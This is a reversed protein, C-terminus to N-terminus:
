VAEAKLAKKIVNSLETLKMAVQDEWYDVIKYRLIYNRLFDGLFQLVKSGGFRKQWDFEITGTLEASYKGQNMKVKKGEKIIEIDQLEYIITYAKFHWKVYETVRKSGIYVTKLKVGTPKGPMLKVKDVEFPDFDNAKFWNFIKRQIFEHDFIGRYKVTTKAVRYKKGIKM